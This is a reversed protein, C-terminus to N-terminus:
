IVVFVTNKLWGMKGDGRKVQHWGEQSRTIQIVAGEYLRFHETADDNPEFRVAAEEVIIVAKKQFESEHISGILSPLVIILLLCIIAGPYYFVKRQLKFRISLIVLIMIAFYLVSAVLAIENASLFGRFFFFVQRYWQEGSQQSNGEVLAQAFRRNARIDADRPRMRFAREYYLIAKGKNGTRLYSNGLNYFVNASRLGSNILQEYDQIADDYKEERYSNNARFFITNHEQPGAGEQAWVNATCFLFFLFILREAIKM